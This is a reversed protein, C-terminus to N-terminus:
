CSENATREIAEKLGVTQVCGLANARITDPLYTTEATPVNVMEVTTPIISAVMNALELITVPISSGVDYVGEGHLLINWMWHGLDEGYLYSRVTSGQGWVALPRGAKADTIFHTIAYLNKLHAGIFTFLRAIVVDTDSERCQREWERKNLAYPTHGNYVAGSSAFLVRPARQLVYSPSVLALHVIADWRSETWRCRYYGARNVFTASIYPPQTRQMWYGVFGTGGTVLVDNIFNM